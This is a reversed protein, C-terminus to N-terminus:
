RHQLTFRLIERGLRIALIFHVPEIDGHNASRVGAMEM